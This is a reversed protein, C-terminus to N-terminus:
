GAFASLDAGILLQLGTIALLVTVLRTFLREDLAGLLRVGLWAGLWAVPLLALALSLRRVSLLGLWGYPILKVLNLIFFFWAITGVFQRRDLGRPLLYVTLPPGGAHALTSGFGAIAGLLGGWAPSPAAVEHLRELLRPAVLRWGVFSLALIGVAIELAREHETFLDFALAGAIVGVVAAPLLLRLDPLSLNRRYQGVTFVDTGILIPLMLAAAEPVPMALAVLPTAVVGVGGGFGAKAVGVLLTALVVLVFADPALGFFM